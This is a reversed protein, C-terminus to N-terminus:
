GRHLVPESFQTIHNLAITRWRKAVPHGDDDQGWSSPMIATTESVIAHPHKVDVVTGDSLHIRFPQFPEDYLRRNLDTPSM